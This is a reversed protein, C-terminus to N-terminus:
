KEMHLFMQTSISPSGPYISRLRFATKAPSQSRLLDRKFTHAVLPATNGSERYPRYMPHEYQNTKMHIQQMAWRHIGQLQLQPRPLSPSHPQPESNLTEIKHKKKQPSCSKHFALKCTYKFHLFIPYCAM